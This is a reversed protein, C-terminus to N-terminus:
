RNDLNIILHLRGIETTLVDNLIDTASATPGDM